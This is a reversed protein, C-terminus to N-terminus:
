RRRKPGTSAPSSASCTRCATPFTWRAKSLSSPMPRCWLTATRASSSNSRSIRCPARSRSSASTRRSSAPAPLRCPRRSASRSRSRCRSRRNEGLERLNAQPREAFECQHRLSEPRPDPNPLRWHKARRVGPDRAIGVAGTIFPGSDLEFFTPVPIDALNVADGTIVVDKVPGSEVTVPEVPADKAAEIRADFAEPTFPASFDHGLALGFRELKSYLGGVIPYKAGRVKEFYYARRKAEIKSIVGALERTPEVERSVRDLEGQDDLLQIFSRFDHM